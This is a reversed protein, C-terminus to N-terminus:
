WRVIFDTPITLRQICRELYLKEITKGPGTPVYHKYFARSVFSEEDSWLLSVYPTCHRTSKSSADREAPACAKPNVAPDIFM